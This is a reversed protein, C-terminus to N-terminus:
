RRRTLSAYLRRWSAVFTATDYRAVDRQAAQGMARRAEASLALFRILGQRIGQASREVVIGNVGDRVLEEVGHLRPVLLPLGAAAAEYTVLSFTEYLSPFALADAAWLYPRVESQMGVFVVKGRLGLTTARNRYQTVLDSEGGVVILKLRAEPLGVLAELLLPLGKREFHGLAVFVLALDHPGIGLERRCRDRDFTVPVQMRQIDVPNPLVDLKGSAAPYETALETALGRSPVVVHRVRRYTAPELLAHLFHDLWRLWGRTGGIGSARWHRKLFARHCFHSYALDGFALNSEVVQMLDFQTGSRLRYVWYWLPALLHYVVFLLALPRTPAPIRVWRIRVPCPNDFEVAFVTFEHERCLSELLRLHCGGIPNNRIVRYDFVAIAPM